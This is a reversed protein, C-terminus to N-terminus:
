EGGGAGLKSRTPAEDRELEGIVQDLTKNQSRRKHTRPPRAALEADLEEMSLVPLEFAEKFWQIDQALEEVTQGTPTAPEKHYGILTGDREYLVVRICYGDSDQFVRYTWIM